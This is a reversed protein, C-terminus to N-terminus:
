TSVQLDGPKKNAYVKIEKTAIELYAYKIISNAVM